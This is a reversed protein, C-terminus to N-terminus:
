SHTLKKPTRVLMLGDYDVITKSASGSLRITFGQETDASNVLLASGGKAKDCVMKWLLERVMANVDGVFVGAKLELLWRTLEGRVSVPVKQLVFVVM